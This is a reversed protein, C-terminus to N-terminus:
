NKGGKKDEEVEVAIFQGDADFLYDMKGVSVEFLITGDAKSIKEAEEIKGDGTTRSLYERANVPLLSAEMEM